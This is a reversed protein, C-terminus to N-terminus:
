LARQIPSMSSRDWDGGIRRGTLDRWELKMYLHRQGAVWPRPDSIDRIEQVEEPDEVIHGRGIAVVSWGRHHEYDINDIEFALETDRGYTGLETYPATRFVIAEGHLTYNVPTIRPGMPTCMAVRGVVVTGLLERCEEHTLEVLENM